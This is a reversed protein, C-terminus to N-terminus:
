KNEQKNVTLKGRVNEENKGHMGPKGDVALKRSGAQLGGERARQGRKGGDEGCGTDRLASSFAGAVAGAEKNVFVEPPVLDERGRGCM